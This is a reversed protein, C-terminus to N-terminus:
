FEMRYCVGPRLGPLPQQRMGGLRDFRQLWQQIGSSNYRITVFDADSMGTTYINSQPDVYIAAPIDTGNGPGNYRQVWQQIGSPNYRITVYDANQAVGYSGGTVYLNGQKDFKLDTGFDLNNGSGNYRQVWQLQGNTNYKVTTMDFGTRSGESRGTVYVNGSMDVVLAAAEDTQHTPGDYVQVWQQIGAENYKITVYNMESKGTVYVNGSHDTAVAMAFDYVNVPGNYTMAWQPIVQSFLFVPLFVLM